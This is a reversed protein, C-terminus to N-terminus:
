KIGKATLVEAYKKDTHMIHKAIWDATFMMLDMVIKHQNKDLDKQRAQKIKDIFAAHEAKHQQSQLADFGNVDFLREEYSFHYVTYDSLEQFISIIADYHDFADKQKALDYLRGALIFLQQHQTDIEAIQLGFEPKWEFMRRVSWM